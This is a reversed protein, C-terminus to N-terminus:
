KAGMRRSKYKELNQLRENKHQLIKISVFLAFLIHIYEFYSVEGRSRKKSFCVFLIVSCLRCCFCVDGTDREKKKTAALM